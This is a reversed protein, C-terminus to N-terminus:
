VSSSEDNSNKEVGVYIPTCVHARVCVRVCVCRLIKKDSDKFSRDTFDRSLRKVGSGKNADTVETSWISRSM